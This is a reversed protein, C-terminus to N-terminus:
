DALLGAVLPFSVVAVATSILIATSSREVFLGFQRAVLFVNGAVPLAAVLILSHTWLADAGGWAMLVGAILLPHVVLKLGTIAWAVAMNGAPSRLALTAGLAFLAAPAATSGLLSLFTDLPAWLDVRVLSFAVGGGVSLAFPNLFAGRALDRLVGLAGVRDGRAVELVAISLPVFFLLDLMLVVGVPVAAAEGLIAMILPLGLFGSNTVTSAQGMLAGEGLRLGFLARGLLGGGVFLALTAIGYVALVDPPVVETVPRASMIRFLMAPLAFYFVFANVGAAGAEPLVKFRGALYGCGILAFFPLTVLFVSLM